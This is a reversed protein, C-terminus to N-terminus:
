VQFASCDSDLLKKQTYQGHYFLLACFAEHIKVGRQLYIYVQSELSPTKNFYRKTFEVVFTLPFAPLAIFLIYLLSAYFTM